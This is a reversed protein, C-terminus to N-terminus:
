FTSTKLARRVTQISLDESDYTICPVSRSEWFLEAVRTAAGASRCRSGTSRSGPGASAKGVREASQTLGSLASSLVSSVPM